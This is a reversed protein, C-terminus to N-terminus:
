AHKRACRIIAAESHILTNEEPTPVELSLLSYHTPTNHLLVVEHTGQWCACQMIDDGERASNFNEVFVTTPPPTFDNDDM